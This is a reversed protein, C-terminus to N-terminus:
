EEKNLQTEKKLNLIHLVMLCIVDFKMAHLNMNQFDIIVYSPVQFHVYGSNKCVKEKHATNGEPHLLDHGEM